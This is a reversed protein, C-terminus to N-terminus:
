PMVMGLALALLTLAIVWAFANWPTRLRVGVEGGNATECLVATASEAEEDPVEVGFFLDAGAMMAHPWVRLDSPHLGAARLRSILLEAEIQTRTQRIRQFM